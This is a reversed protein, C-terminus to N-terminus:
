QNEASDEDKGAMIKISGLALFKVMTKANTKIM